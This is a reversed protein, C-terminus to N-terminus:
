AQYLGLMIMKIRNVTQATIGAKKAIEAQSLNTTRLLTKAYSSASRYNIAGVKKVKM